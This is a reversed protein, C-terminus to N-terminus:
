IVAPAKKTSRYILYAAISAGVTNFVLDLAINYYGGVGTDHVVLVAIFEVIENLVGFGTGALAILLFYAFGKNLPKVYRVMLHHSLFTAVGFGFAHVVQDYKLLILDGQDILPLLIQAYLVHDGIQIGGGAMHLLGWISLGWLLALPFEAQERMLMVLLVFFFVMVAVYWLFELNHQLLYYAGFGVIYLANFGILFWHERRFGNM